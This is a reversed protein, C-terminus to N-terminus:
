MKSLRIGNSIDAFHELPQMIQKLNKGKHRLKVM